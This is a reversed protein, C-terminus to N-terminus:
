NMRETTQQLPAGREAPEALVTELMRGLAANEEETAGMAIFRVNGRRDILFSMPISFVGYNLDNIRSDSVVIGYPLRNQKKFTRLYALEETRTLKRGEAHGSYNTVGLIVLGQDKYSEHWNQLKPFIRRCPGCWPAWFDLLVVQGRLDSLKIPSQGIWQTAELEPLATVADSAAFGARTDISKDLAFLRINAFRLLNGSPLTAATKRLEQVSAIASEKKNMSVDAEASLSTAKFLLDDRRFANITKSEAVLKAIKLMEQAHKSMDEYARTKKLAEAILKEMGFWEVLNRPENKAYDNVAAKAQPILNARTAYLVIVVRALQANEGASTTRLFRAMADLAGDANGELHYLMGLFYLDSNPLDKRAALIAAFKAALDKQEQKTTAELKQDYAVKSKNFEAFKTDVYTNAEEFLVKASRKEPAVKDAPQAAVSVSAALVVTLALLQFKFLSLKM